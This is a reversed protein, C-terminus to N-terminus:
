ASSPKVRGQEELQAAHSRYHFQRHGPDVKERDPRVLSKKRGVRTGFGEGYEEDQM